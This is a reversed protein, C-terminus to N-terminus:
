APFISDVTNEEDIVIYLKKDMVKATMFKNNTKSDEESAFPFYVVQEDKNDWEITMWEIDSNKVVTEFIGVELAGRNIDDAKVTDADPLIEIRFAQAPHIEIIDGGDIRGLSTSVRKIWIDGVLEVPVAWEGGNHFHFNFVSVKRTM